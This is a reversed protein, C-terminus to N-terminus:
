GFIRSPEILLLTQSFGFIILSLLPASDASRIKHNVIVVEAYVTRFASVKGRLWQARTGHPSCQWQPRSEHIILRHIQSTLRHTILRGNTACSNGHINPNKKKM